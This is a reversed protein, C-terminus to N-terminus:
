REIGAEGSPLDALQPVGVPLPVEVKPWFFESATAFLCGVLASRSGSLEGQGQAQAFLGASRDSPDGLGEVHALGVGESPM